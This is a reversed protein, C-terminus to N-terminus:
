LGVAPPISHVHRAPYEQGRAAKLLQLRLPPENQMATMTRDKNDVVTSTNEGEVIPQGCMPKGSSIRFATQRSTGNECKMLSAPGPYACWSPSHGAHGASIGGDQPPQLGGVRVVQSKSIKRRTEQETRSKRTNWRRVRM